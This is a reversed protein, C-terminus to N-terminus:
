SSAAYHKKWQGFVLIAWLLNGALVRGSRHADLVGHLFRVDFIGDCPGGPRIADSLLDALPGRIWKDVPIEFGQKKRHLITEPLKEALAEKFIWKSEGSRIKLESPISAALELFEHDVMPPRVELGFAMSARDVKVLFDDPLILAIDCHTMANLADGTPYTETVFREASWGNRDNRPYINLRDSQSAISLTNAYAFDADLALNMLASKM